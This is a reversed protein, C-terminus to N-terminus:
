LIRKFEMVLLHDTNALNTHKYFQDDTKLIPLMKDSHAHNKKVELFYTSNQGKQRIKEEYITAYISKQIIIRISKSISM